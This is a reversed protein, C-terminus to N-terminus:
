KKKKAKKAAKAPKSAKSPATPKTPTVPTAAPKSATSVPASPAGQPRLAPANVRGEARRKAFCPKCYIARDPSPRFPVECPDSCDACVAEYMTRREHRPLNKPEAMPHPSSFVQQPAAPRQAQPAPQSGRSATTHAIVTDMKRELAGLREMLKSMLGDLYPDVKPAATKKAKAAKAM